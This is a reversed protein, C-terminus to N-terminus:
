FIDTPKNQPPIQMGQELYPQKSATPLSDEQELQILLVM